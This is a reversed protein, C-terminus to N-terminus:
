DPRDSDTHVDRVNNTFSETFNLRKWRNKAEEKAKERAEEESDAEVRLVGTKTVGVQVAYVSPRGTDDTSEGSM